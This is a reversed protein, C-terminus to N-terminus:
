SWSSLIGIFGLLTTLLILLASVGDVGLKYSVGIAPIWSLEEPFQFEPGTFRDFHTWLPVSVLFGILGVANATWRVANDRGKFIPLLLILAGALPTWTIISLLPLTQFDM